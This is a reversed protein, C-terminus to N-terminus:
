SQQKEDNTEKGGQRQCLYGECNKVTANSLLLDSIMKEMWREVM